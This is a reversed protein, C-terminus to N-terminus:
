LLHEVLVQVCRNGVDIFNSGTEVFCEHLEELLRREGQSKLVFEQLIRTQREYVITNNIQALVYNLSKWHGGVFVLQSGSDKEAGAAGAGSAAEFDQYDQSSPSQPGPAPQNSSKEKGGMGFLSMFRRSGGGGGGSPSGASG